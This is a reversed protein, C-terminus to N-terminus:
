LLDFDQNLIEIETGVTINALNNKFDIKRLPIM